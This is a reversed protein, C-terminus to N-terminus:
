RVNAREMIEYLDLWMAACQGIEYQLKDIRSSVNPDDSLLQMIALQADQLARTLNECVIKRM